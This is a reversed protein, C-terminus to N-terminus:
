LNVLSVTFNLRSQLICVPARSHSSFSCSLQLFFNCWASFFLSHWLLLPCSCRGKVIARSSVAPSLIARSGVAPSLIARSGVAPSSQGCCSLSHCLLLSFPEVAWLLLSFPEVAWLLLEVACLLLPFPEVVWLLLSFPEVAWLLLFLDVFCPIFLCM